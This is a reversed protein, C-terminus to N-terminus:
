PGQANQACEAHDRHDVVGGTVCEEADRMEGELREDRDCAHGDSETQTEGGTEEGGPAGISGPDGFHEPAVSNASGRPYLTRLRRSRQGTARSAMTLMARTTAATATIIATAWPKAVDNRPVPRSSLAITTECPEFESTVDNTSSSSRLTM